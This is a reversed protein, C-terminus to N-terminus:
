NHKVFIVITITGYSGGGTVGVGAHTFAPNLINDRHGQSAMWMSLTEGASSGGALNEGMFVFKVNSAKLMDRPSGYTPSDHSFVDHDALDKSKKRALDVLKPDLELSDLGLRAREANMLELLAREEPTLEMGPLVATTASTTGPVTLQSLRALLSAAEARTLPEQPKLLYSKGNGTPQGKLVDHVVAAAVHMTLSPTISARDQFKDLVGQATQELSFGMVSVIAAAADERKCVANPRFQGADVDGSRMMFRGVAEIYAFAWHSVPVDSFTSTAPSGAPLGFALVLMKAFEARSVTAGPKFTGDAYGKLVNRGVLEDVAQFAWHNDPLDGFRSTHSPTPKAFAPAGHVLLLVLITLLALIRKM